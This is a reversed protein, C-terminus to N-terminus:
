VRVSQRDRKASRRRLLLSVNPSTGQIPAQPNRLRFGDTDNHRRRRRGLWRVGDGFVKKLHRLLDDNDWMVKTLDITPTSKSATGVVRVFRTINASLQVQRYVFLVTDPSMDDADPVFVDDAGVLELGVVDFEEGDDSDDSVRANDRRTTRHSANESSSSTESCTSTDVEGCRNEKSQRDFRRRKRAGPPETSDKPEDDYVVYPRKFAPGREKECVNRDTLETITTTNVIGSERGVSEPGIAGEGDMSLPPPPSPLHDGRRDNVEARKRRDNEKLENEYQDFMLDIDSETFADVRPNRLMDAAVRGHIIAQDDDDFIYEDDYLFDSTGSSRSLARTRNPIGGGHREDREAERGREAAAVRGTNQGDVAARSSSTNGVVNQQPPDAAVGASPRTIEVAAVCRIDSLMADVFWRHNHDDEGLRSGRKLRDRFVTLTPVGYTTALRYCLEDYFYRLLVRKAQPPIRNEVLLDTRPGLPPRETDTATPTTHERNRARYRHSDDVRFGDRESEGSREHGPDVTTTTTTTTTTIVARESLSRVGSPGNDGTANKDRNGASLCATTRDVTENQPDTAERRHPYAADTTIAFDTWATSDCVVDGNIQRVVELWAPSASLSSALVTVDRPSSAPYYAAYLVSCCVSKGDTQKRVIAAGGDDGGGIVSRNGRNNTNAAHPGARLEETLANM